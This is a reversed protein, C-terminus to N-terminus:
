KKYTFSLISCILCGIFARVSSVIAKSLASVDIQHPIVPQDPIFGSLTLIRIGFVDSILLSSNFPHFMLGTPTDLSAMLAPGSSTGVRGLGNGALVGFSRSVQPGNKRADAASLNLIQLSSPLCIHLSFSSIDCLCNFTM